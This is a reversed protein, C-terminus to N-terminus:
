ELILTHGHELYQGNVIRLLVVSGRPFLCVKNGFLQSSVPVPCSTPTKTSAIESYVNGPFVGALAKRTSANRVDSEASIERLTRWWRFAVRM